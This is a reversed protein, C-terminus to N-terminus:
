GLQDLKAYFVDLETTLFCVFFLCVVVLSGNLTPCLCDAMKDVAVVIAKSLDRERERPSQDALRKWPLYTM